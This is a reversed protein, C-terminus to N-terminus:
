YPRRVCRNSIPSCIISTRYAFGELLWDYDSLDEFMSFEEQGQQIIPVFPIAMDPVTVHCEYPSSKPDTLDAIVFKSLGALVRLTETISRDVPKDFNFIIPLDGFQRLREAIASLVSMREPIFRGLLLVARGTMSAPRSRRHPRFRRGPVATSVGSDRGERRASFGGPVYGRSDGRLEVRMGQHLPPADEGKLTYRDGHRVIEEYGFISSGGFSLKEPPQDNM